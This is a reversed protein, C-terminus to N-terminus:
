QRGGTPRQVQETDPKAWKKKLIKTQLGSRQNSNYKQRIKKNKRGWWSWPCTFLLFIITFMFIPSMKLENYGAENAVSASFM